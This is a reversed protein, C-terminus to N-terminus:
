NNSAHGNHVPSTNCFNKLQAVIDTLSQEQAVDLPSLGNVDVARPDAGHALLFTVHDRRSHTVAVHLPTRGNYDAENFDAGANCWSQLASVDENAVVSCASVIM